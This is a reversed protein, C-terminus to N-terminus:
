MRDKHINKKITRRKLFIYEKFMETESQVWCASSVGRQWCQIWTEHQDKKKQKGNTTMTSLQQWYLKLIIHSQVVPNMLQFTIMWKELTFNTISHQKIMVIPPISGWWLDAEAKCLIPHFLSWRNKCELIGSVLFEYRSVRFFFHIRHLQSPSTTCSYPISLIDSVM